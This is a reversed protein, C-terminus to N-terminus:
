YFMKFGNEGEPIYLMINKSTITNAKADKYEKSRYYDVRLVTELDDKSRLQVLKNDHCLIMEYDQIPLVKRDLVGDVNFFVKAGKSFESYDEKKLYIMEAEYLTVDATEKLFTYLDCDVIWKQVKNYYDVVKQELNPIMTLDQANKLKDSYDFPLKATFHSEGKFVKLKKDGINTPLNLSKGLQKAESLPQVKDELYYIKVDVWAGESIFMENKKPLVEISYSFDGSSRLYANIPLLMTEGEDKVFQHGMLINNVSVLVRCEQKSIQIYYMPKVSYSKMLSAQEELFKEVKMDMNKSELNDVAQGKCLVPLLFVMIFVLQRLSSKMEMNKMKLNDSWLYGAAGVNGKRKGVM